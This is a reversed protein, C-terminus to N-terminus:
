RIPSSTRGQTGCTRAEFDPVALIATELRGLRLQGWLDPDEADGYVM